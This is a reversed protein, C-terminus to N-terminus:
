GPDSEHASADAHCRGDLGRRRRASRLRELHGVVRGGSEYVVRQLNVDDYVLIAGNKIATEAISIDRLQNLELEDKDLKGKRKNKDDLERLRKLMNDFNGSGDNWCAQGFGAGEVGFLFSSAHMIEPAIQDFIEILKDRTLPDKTKSLEDRQVGTSLIRKGVLAPLPIKGELVRNFANTDFMYAPAADL